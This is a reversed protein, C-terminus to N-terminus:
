DKLFEVRLNNKIVQLFEAYIIEQILYLQALDQKTKDFVACKDLGSKALSELLCRQDETFVGPFRDIFESLQETRTRFYLGKVMLLDKLSKFINKAIKKGAEISVAPQLFAKRAEGTYQQVKQWLSLSLQYPNPGVLKDFPNEGYLVRATRMHWAFFAGNTNQSYYDANKPIETLFLPRVNCFMILERDIGIIDKLREFYCRESRDFIIALDCDSKSSHELTEMSGHFLIGIIEGPVFVKECCRVFKKTREEIEKESLFIKREHNSM